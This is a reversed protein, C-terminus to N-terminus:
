TQMRDIIENIKAILEDTTAGSQLLEMLGGIRAETYHVNQKLTELVRALRPDLDNLPPIAPKTVRKLREALVFDQADPAQLNSSDGGELDSRPNFCVGSESDLVLFSTFTGEGGFTAESESEITTFGGLGSIPSGSIPGLGLM